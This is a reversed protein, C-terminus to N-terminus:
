NTSDVIKRKYTENQTFRFQNDIFEGNSLEIEYLNIKTAYKGNENITEKDISPFAFNLKNDKLFPKCNFNNIGANISDIEINWKNKMKITQCSDAISPQVFYAM